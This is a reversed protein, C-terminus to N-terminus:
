DPAEVPDPADQVVQHAVPDDTPPPGAADQSTGPPRSAEDQDDNEAPAATGPNSPDTSSAKMTNTNGARSEAVGTIASFRQSSSLVQGTGVM